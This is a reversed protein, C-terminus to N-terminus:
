PNLTGLFELIRDVTEVPKEEQPIHGCHDLKELQSNPIAARLKDGVIPDIIRDQEGFLIFTPVSITQYKSTLEHINPPIIQRATELLAHRGGPAAIPRAYATVQEKTIKKRDYMAVKLVIKAALSPPCLYVILAGLLPIRLLTLYLPVYEKYAGPDILFLASLRHPDQEQLRIALFLSLAGGFSNGVLTLKKLDLQLILEYILDAHHQPSYQKDRPKPSAGCGKLDVLILQYKQSLPAILHRWTYLNAGFGHLCLIPDGSGYIEYHLKSTSAAKSMAKQM